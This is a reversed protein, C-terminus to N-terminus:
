GAKRAGRTSSSVSAHRREREMSSYEVWGKKYEKDLLFVFFELIQKVEMGGLAVM